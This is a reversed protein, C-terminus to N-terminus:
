QKDDGHGQWSALSLNRDRRIVQCRSFGVLFKNVTKMNELALGTNRGFCPSSQPAWTVCAPAGFAEGLTEVTLPLQLVAMETYPSLEKHDAKGARPPSTQTKVRTKGCCSPIQPYSLVFPLETVM